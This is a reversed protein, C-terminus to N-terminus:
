PLTYGMITPNNFNTLWKIWILFKGCGSQSKLYEAKRSDPIRYLQPFLLEKFLKWSSEIIRDQHITKSVIYRESTIEEM